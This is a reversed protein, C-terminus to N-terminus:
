TLFNYQLLVPLLQSIPFLLEISSGSVILLFYEVLLETPLQVIVVALLFQDALLQVCFTFEGM